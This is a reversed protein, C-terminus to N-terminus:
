TEGGDTSKLVGNSGFSFSGFRLDGTGAYLVDANSPDITMDSIASAQIEPIDTKIAWTTSADCCNTTKWIGGGDAGLWAIAPNTPHSIVVNVRGAVGGGSGLPRPGLPTFQLPDLANITRQDVDDSGAPFGSQMASMQRASDIQWAPNYHGTPYVVRNVWYDGMDAIKGPYDDTETEPAARSTVSQNYRSTTQCAGLGFLVCALMVGGRTAVADARAM